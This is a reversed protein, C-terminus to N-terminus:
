AARYISTLVLSSNNVFDTDALYSFAGAETLESLYLTTTNGETNGQFQNAFTITNLRLTVASYAADNSDATFPLGTILVVGTSSGKSSLALFGTVTVMNGIKTYYGTSKSYIIGTVGGGFSVGMTWTGEEYDDLTNADASPVQTAPFKVGAVDIRNAAVLAALRTKVDAFSGKPLTGLETLAAILEKKLENYRAAYLWDLDDVRDPLDPTPGTQTPLAAPYVPPVYAM